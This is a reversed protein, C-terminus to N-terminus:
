KVGGGIAWELGSHPKIAQNTEDQSPLSYKGRKLLQVEWVRNKLWGALSRPVQSAVKVPNRNTQGNKIPFLKNKCGVRIYM